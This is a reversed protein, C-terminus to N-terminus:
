SPARKSRRPRARGGLPLISRFILLVRRLRTGKGDRIRSGKKDPGRMGPTPSSKIISVRESM